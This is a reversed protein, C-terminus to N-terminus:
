PEGLTNGLASVRSLETLALIWLTLVAVSVCKTRSSDIVDNQVIYDGM